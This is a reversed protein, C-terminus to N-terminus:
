PPYHNLFYLAYERRPLRDFSRQRMSQQLLHLLEEVGIERGEILSAIMALYPLLSSNVLTVEDLTFGDLVLSVEERTALEFDVPGPQGRTDSAAPMISAAQSPGARFSIEENVVVPPETAEPSVVNEQGGRNM